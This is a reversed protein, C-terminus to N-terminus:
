KAKKKQKVVIKKPPETSEKLALGNKQVEEAVETQRSLKMLESSVYIAQSRLENIEERFVDRKKKLSEAHYSNSIYILGLFVLFFVFPLQNRVKKRTLLTGDIIGRLIGSEKLSDYEEETIFDTDRHIDEEKM